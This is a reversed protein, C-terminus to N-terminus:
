IVDEKLGSIELLEGSSILQIASQIYPYFVTDYEVFPIETRVRDHVKSIRKSSRLPLHFDLAQTACILEIALVKETNEIVRLAKRGGISGMSVHDEQGLSTPISDASSPFCQGKNESALAATTYQLIMFGSNIGTDSVLLKPVGPAKGELSLYIRRDSINSIESAALCVYDIAMALPQGHFNGGSIVLDKSFVVPNDTVANMEIDLLQILHNLANRAAGHVQPLCRLSYPDQVRDCDKHSDLIPSGEILHYVNAASKITGAYPRLEHLRKDFPRISGSLGEVMMAGILDAHDILRGLRHCIDIGHAAIFQTGNILALGEKAGLSLPKLDYQELFGSSPIAKGDVLVEGMGILPLFLHSLPALDGSAGVSGQSPVVPMVDQEIHWLMRSLTELRIGSYGMSLNHVKLIMMYKVLKPDIPLGVGVAHSMLLNVQLQHTEQPTVKVTCLPGFGTNIGYVAADQQAIDQVLEACRDIKDIVDAELLGQISGDSLGLVDGLSLKDKGYRFIRKPM